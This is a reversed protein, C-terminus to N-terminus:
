THQMSQSRWSLVVVYEQCLYAAYRKIDASFARRLVCLDTHADYIRTLIDPEHGVVSIGQRGSLSTTLDASLTSARM